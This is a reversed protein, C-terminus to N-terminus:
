YSNFIRFEWEYAQPDNELLKLDNEDSIHEKYEDPFYTHNDQEIEQLIRLLDLLKDANALNMKEYGMRLEWPCERYKEEDLSEKPSLCCRQVIYAYIERLASRPVPIRFDSHAHDTGAHRNSIDIMKDRIDGFTWGCWWCIEFFGSDEDLPFHEQKDSIIQDTKKERIRAEIYLDLGM